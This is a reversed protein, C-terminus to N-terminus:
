AAVEAKRRKEVAALKELGHLMSISQTQIELSLYQWQEQSLGLSAILHPSQEEIFGRKDKRVCRGTWDVLDIYDKLNFPLAAFDQQQNIVESFPMLRPADSKETGHVQQIREKVSTFDSSELDHSIGARIPNLDVYAMCSLLATEDLLAQSKFRSEWFRRKCGDEM